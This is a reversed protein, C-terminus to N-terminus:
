QYITVMEQLPPRHDGSKPHPIWKKSPLKVKSPSEDYALYATLTPVITGPTFKYQKSPDQRELRSVSHLFNSYKLGDIFADIEGPHILNTHNDETFARLELFEDYRRFYTQISDDEQSPRNRCLISPRKIVSPHNQMVIQILAQYGQGHNQTVSMSFNKTKSYTSYKVT